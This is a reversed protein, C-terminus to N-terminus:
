VRAWGWSKGTPPFRLGVTVLNGGPVHGSFFGEITLLNGVQIILNFISRGRISVVNAFLLEAKGTPQSEYYKLLHKVRVTPRCHNKDVVCASYLAVQNERGLEASRYGRFPHLSVELAYRQEPSLNCGRMINLVFISSFVHAVTGITERHWYKPTTQFHPIDLIDM